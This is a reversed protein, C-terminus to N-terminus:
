DHYNGTTDENRATHRDPDGEYRGARHKLIWDELVNEVWTKPSTQSDRALEVVRNVIRPTTIAISKVFGLIPQSKLPKYGLCGCSKKFGSRLDAVAASVTKGCRCQCEWTVANRIRYEALKTVTLLGYTHGTLDIASKPLKM